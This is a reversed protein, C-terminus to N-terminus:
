TTEAPPQNKQAYWTRGAVGSSQVGDGSQFFPDVAAKVGPWDPHYDDGLLVGGPTVLPWFLAIDEAVSPRDHAADLYVYSAQLQTKHLLAAAGRSPLSLPVVHDQLGSAIVNTLFQDYLSPRGHRFDLMTRWEPNLWHEASGLFTDICIIVVDDNYKLAEKVAFLASRGKWVGVEVLIRPQTRAIIDVLVEPRELWGQLDPQRGAPDFGDFPDAGLIIRRTDEALSM